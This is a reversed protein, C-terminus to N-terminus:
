QKIFQQVTTQTASSLTLTYLGVPINSLNFSPRNVGIHGNITEQLVVRGNTDTIKATLVPADDTEFEFNLWGLVPNPAIKVVWTKSSPQRLSIVKSIRITGDLDLAKLRYYALAFPQADTAAYTQEISSNGVAKIPSGIVRWSSQGDFSRELIFQALDRESQTVWHLYNYGGETNGSFLTLELPLVVNAASSSPTGTHNVGGVDFYYNFNNATTYADNSISFQATTPSGSAVVPVSMIKLTTGNTLATSSSASASYTRYKKSGSTLTSGGGSVGVPITSVNSTEASLDVNYSTNWSITFVTGVLGTYNATPTIWVELVSGTNKLEVNVNQANSLSSITLLFVIFAYKFTM